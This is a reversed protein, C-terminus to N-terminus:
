MNRDKIHDVILRYHARRHLLRGPPIFVTEKKMNADMEILVLVGVSSWIVRDSGETIDGGLGISM